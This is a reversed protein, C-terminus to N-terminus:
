RRYLVFRQATQGLEGSWQRHLTLTKQDASLQYRDEVTFSHGKVEGQSKTILADGDWQATSIVPNFDLTNVTPRAGPSYTSVTSASRNNVSIRTAITLNSGTQSIKQTLVTPLPASGGDSLYYNMAWTGTLDPQAFASSALLCLALLRM